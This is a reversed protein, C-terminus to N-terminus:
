LRANDCQDKACQKRRKKSKQIAMKTIPYSDGFPYDFWFDQWRGTSFMYFIALYLDKQKMDFRIGLINFLEDIDHDFRGDLYLLLGEKGFETLLLRFVDYLVPQVSITDLDIFYWKDEQTWLVNHIAADGHQVCSYFHLIGCEKLLTDYQRYVVNEYFDSKEFTQRMGAIMGHVCEEAHALDVHTTGKIRECIILHKDREAYLYRAKPYPFKKYYLEMNEFWNERCPDYHSAVFDDYLCIVKKSWGGLRDSFEMEPM